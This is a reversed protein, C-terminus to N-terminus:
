KLVTGSFLNKIVTRRDRKTTHKLIYRYWKDFEPKPLPDDINSPPEWKYGLETKTGVQGGKRYYKLLGINGRFGDVLIEVPLVLVYYSRFKDRFVVMM